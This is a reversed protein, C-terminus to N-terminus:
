ASPEVTAAQDVARSQSHRSSRLRRRARGEEHQYEVHQHEVLEILEAQLCDDDGFCGASSRCRTRRRRGRLITRCVAVELRALTQDSPGRFLGVAGSRGPNEDRRSRPRGLDDSMANSARWRCPSQRLSVNACCAVRRTSAGAVTGEPIELIEAIQKHPLEEITALVLTVRLSPSLEAVADLVRAVEARKSRRRHLSGVCEPRAGRAPRRRTCGRRRRTRALAAGRKGGRLSNLATNVTIRYLWTFFDARGDFTPLGRIRACSRRKRRTTPM